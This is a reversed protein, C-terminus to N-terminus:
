GRASISHLMRRSCLERWPVPIAAFAAASIAGSTRLFRRSAYRNIAFSNYDYFASVVLLRQKGDSKGLAAPDTRTVDPRGVFVAEGFVGVTFEALFAQVFVPKEGLRAPSRVCGTPTDSAPPIRM